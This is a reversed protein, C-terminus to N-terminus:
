NRLILLNKVQVQMLENRMKSQSGLVIKKSNLVELYPLLM